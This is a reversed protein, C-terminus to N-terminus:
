YTNLQDGAPSLRRRVQSDLEINDVTIWGSPHAIEARVLPVNGDGAVSDRKGTLAVRQGSPVRGVEATSLGRGARVILEHKATGQIAM